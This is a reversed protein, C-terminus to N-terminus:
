FKKERPKLEERLSDQEGGWMRKREEDENGEKRCIGMPALLAWWRQLATRAVSAQLTTKGM